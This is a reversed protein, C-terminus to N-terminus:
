GDDSEGGAECEIAGLDAFAMVRGRGRGRDGRRGRGRGSLTESPRLNEDMFEGDGAGGAAENVTAGVLVSDCSVDVAVGVTTVEAGRVRM